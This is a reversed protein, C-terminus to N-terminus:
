NVWEGEVPSHIPGTTELCSEPSTAGNPSAHTVAQICSAMCTEGTEADTMPGM